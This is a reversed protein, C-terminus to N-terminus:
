EKNKIISQVKDYDYYEIYLLNEQIYDQLSFKLSELLHEAIKKDINKIDTLILILCANRKNANNYIKIAEVQKRVKNEILKANFIAMKLEIFCEANYKKFYADFLVRRRINDGVSYNLAQPEFEINEVPSNKLFYQLINQEYNPIYKKNENSNDLDQNNYEEQNDDKIEQNTANDRNAYLNNTIHVNNSFFSIQKFLIDQQKEINDLKKSLELFSGIKIVEFKNLLSLFIPILICFCVFYMNHEDLYIVNFYVLLALIIVFISYICKYYM